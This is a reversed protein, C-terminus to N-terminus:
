DTRALELGPTQQDTAVDRREPLKKLRELVQPAWTRLEELDADQLSYQYQTRTARGGVRVDQFSQMFLNVGTVKALKPRLRAIVQDASLKRPPKPRLDVFVTGNNGTSGNAAGIFSIVHAVGADAGVVANVAQQRERMAQFSIDQPAESFGALAGADQQPFLGKPVTAFLFVSLVVTGLTMLLTIGRHGLV